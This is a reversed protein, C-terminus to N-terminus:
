VHTVFCSPYLYKLIKGEAMMHRAAHSLFLRFSNRKAGLCSAADLSQVIGNSKTWTTVTPFLVFLQYSINRPKNRLMSEIQLTLQLTLPLLLPCHRRVNRRKSGAGVGKCVLNPSVLPYQQVLYYFSACCRFHSWSSWALFLNLERGPPGRIYDVNRQIIANFAILALFLYRSANLSTSKTELQVWEVGFLSIRLRLWQAALRTQSEAFLILTALQSKSQMEMIHWVVRLLVYQVDGPGRTLCLWPRLRNFQEPHPPIIAVQQV